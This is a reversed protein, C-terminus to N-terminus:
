VGIDGRFSGGGHLVFREAAGAELDGNDAEAAVVEAHADVLVLGLGDDILRDVGPDVEEVGGVDVAARAGLLKEAGREAVPALVYHEGGLEDPGDAAGDERLARRPAM